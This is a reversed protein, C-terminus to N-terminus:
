VISYFWRLADIKENIADVKRTDNKSQYLTLARQYARLAETKYKGTGVVRVQLPDHYRGWSYAYVRYNYIESDEFLFVGDTMKSSLHEAKLVSVATKFYKLRDTYGNFGGNIM